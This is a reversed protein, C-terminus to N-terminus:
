INKQEENRKNKNKKQNARKIQKKKQEIKSALTHVSKIRAGCFGYM